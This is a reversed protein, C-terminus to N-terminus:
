IVFIQFQSNGITYKCISMLRVVYSLKYVLVLTILVGVPKQIKFKQSITRINEM